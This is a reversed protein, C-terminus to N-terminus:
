DHELVLRRTWSLLGDCAEEIMDLVVEFGEPGGGYPDPVEVAGSSGQGHGMLLEVRARQRPGPEADGFERVVRNYNGRDMALVLDFRGADQATLQRARIPSMDYGRAAATRMSRPDPPEGVHYSHTGASDVEVLDALGAATLKSRFVAEATPSRCINGMCVFLVSLKAAPTDPDEPAM